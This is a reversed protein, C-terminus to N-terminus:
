SDHIIRNGNEAFAAYLESDNPSTDSPETQSDELEEEITPLLETVDKIFDEKVEFYWLWLGSSSPPM